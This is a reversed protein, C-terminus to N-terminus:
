EKKQREIAEKRGKNVEKRKRRRRIAQQQERRDFQYDQLRKELNRNRQQLDKEVPLLEM